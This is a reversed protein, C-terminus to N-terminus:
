EPRLPQRWTGTKETRDEDYQDAWPLPQIWDERRKVWLEYEPALDTPVEDLSGVM